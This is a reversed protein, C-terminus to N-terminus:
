VYCTSRGKKPGTIDKVHFASTRSGVQLGTTKEGANASAVCTLMVLAASSVLLRQM